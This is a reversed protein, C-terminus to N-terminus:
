LVSLWVLCVARDEDGHVRGCFDDASRVTGSGRSDRAATDRREAWHPSRAQEGVATPSGPWCWRRVLGPLLVITAAAALFGTLTAVDFM